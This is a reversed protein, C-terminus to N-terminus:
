EDRPALSIAQCISVHVARGLCRLETGQVRVLYSVVAQINLGLSIQHRQSGCEVKTCVRQTAKGKRFSVRYVLCPDM